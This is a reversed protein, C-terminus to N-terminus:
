SSDGGTGISSDGQTSVEEWLRKRVMVMMRRKRVM